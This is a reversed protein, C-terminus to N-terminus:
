NNVGPIKGKAWSAANGIKDAVVGAREKTQAIHGPEGLTNYNAVDYDGQENGRNYRVLTNLWKSVFESRVRPNQLGETFIVDYLLKSADQDTALDKILEGRRFRWDQILLETLVYRPSVVGRAISYIRSIIQEVRFHRPLGEMAATPVEGAVLTILSNMDNMKDWMNTGDALTRESLIKKLLNRNTSVYNNFAAADLKMVTEFTSGSVDGFTDTATHQVTGDVLRIGEMKTAALKAEEMAGDYLIRELGHIGREYKELAKGDGIKKAEDRRKKLVNYVKDSQRTSGGRYTADILLQRVDKTSADIRGFIAEADALYFGELGFDDKIITDGRQRAIINEEKAILESVEDTLPQIKEDLLKTADDDGGSFIRGLTDMPTKKDVAGRGSLQKRYDLLDEGGFSMNFGDPLPKNKLGRWKITRKLLDRAKQSFGAIRTGEKAGEVDFMRKFMEANREWNMGPSDTGIFQDFMYLPGVLEDGRGTKGIMDYGVGRYFPDAVNTKFFANANKWDQISTTDVVDQAKDLAKTIAEAGQRQIHSNKHLIGDTTQLNTWSIEKLNTRMTTMTELSFSYGEGLERLSVDLNNAIDEIQKEVTVAELNNAPDAAVSKRDFGRTEALKEWTKALKEESLRGVKFQNTILEARKVELFTELNEFDEISRSFAGLKGSEALDGAGAKIAMLENGLTDMIEHSAKADALQQEVTKGTKSSFKDKYNRIKNYQGKSRVRAVRFANRVLKPAEKIIFNYDAEEFTDLINFYFMEGTKKDTFFHAGHADMYEQVTDKTETLKKNSVFVVEKGQGTGKADGMAELEDQTRIKITGDDSEFRRLNVKESGISTKDSMKTIYALKRKQSNMFTEVIGGPGIDEKVRNISQLAAERFGVILNELGATEWAEDGFHMM